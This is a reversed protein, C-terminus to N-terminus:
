KTVSAYEVGKVTIKAADLAAAMQGINLLDYKKVKVKTMCVTFNAMFAAMITVVWKPDNQAPIAIFTAEKVKVEEGIYVGASAILTSTAVEQQVTEAIEQQKEQHAQQLIEPAVNKDNEYFSFQKVLENEGDLVFSGWQPAPVSQVIRQIEDNNLLKFPFGAFNMPQVERIAQRALEMTAQADESSARVKICAQYADFIINNITQKFIGATRAYENQVHTTFNLEEQAKDRKDNQEKQKALREDLEAKVLALFDQNKSPDYHRELTMINDKISDIFRGTFDRRKEVMINWTAKYNSIRDALSLEAGMKAPDGLLIAQLALGDKELVDGLHQKAHGLSLWIQGREPDLPRAGEVYLILENM